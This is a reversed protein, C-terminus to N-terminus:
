FDITISDKVGQLLNKLNRVQFQLDFKGTNGQKRLTIAQQDQSPNTITQNNLKWEVYPNQQMLSRSIYYPEARVKLEDGVFTFNDQMALPSEGSLPNVEYFHLEPKSIPVYTSASGITTGNTDIVDVSVHVEQEFGPVFTISNKGYQSGGNQVTDGITWRYSYSTAPKPTGTFPIATVRVTSGNSPLPRGAYFSPTLTDAEVLLDIRVPRITAQATLTVGNALTTKAEIQRSTGLTGATVQLSRNNQASAVETGNIFWHIQAGSTDISYDNLRVTVQDGPAPSTPSTVLQSANALNFSAGRPTQAHSFSPPILVVCVVFILCWVTRKM